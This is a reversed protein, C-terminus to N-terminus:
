YRILALRLENQRSQFDRSAPEKIHLLRAVSNMARHFELQRSFHFATITRIPIGMLGLVVSRDADHTRRGLESHADGDYEIGVRQRPSYVDIELYNSTTLSKYAKPIAIRHNLVINRYGLGGKNQPLIIALATATEMPSRSNDRVLPLLRRVRRGGKLGPHSDLMREIKWTTTLPWRELYHTTALSNLQYGGCLEYGYELLELPQMWSSAQVLNLAGGTVFLGPALHVLLSSDIPSQLVHYRFHASRTRDAPSPVLIDIPEGPDTYIGCERLLARVYRAIVKAPMGSESIGYVDDPLTLARHVVRQRNQAHLVRYATKHSLVIPTDM